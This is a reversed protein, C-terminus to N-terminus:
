FKQRLVYPQLPLGRDMFSFILRGLLVAVVVNLLVVAAFLYYSVFFTAISSEMVGEERFTQRTVASAWSSAGSL